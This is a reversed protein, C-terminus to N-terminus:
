DVWFALRALLSTLAGLLARAVSTTGNARSAEARRLALRTERDKEALAARLEMRQMLDIMEALAELGRLM